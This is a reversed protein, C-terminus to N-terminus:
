FRAWDYWGRTYYYTGSHIRFDEDCRARSGMLLTICDHAHAVLPYQQQWGAIANLM